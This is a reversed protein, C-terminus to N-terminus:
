PATTFSYVTTSSFAEGPHLITEPFHPHHVSGPFHQTELCVGAYREYAAGGRGVISGDLFNGSYLQIGPETSRISLARGSTPDEL